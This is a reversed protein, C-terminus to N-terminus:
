IAFLLKVKSTSTLSPPPANTQPSAVASTADISPFLPFGLCFGGCKLSWPSQSSGVIKFL